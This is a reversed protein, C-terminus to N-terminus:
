VMGGILTEIWYSSVFHGKSSARTARILVGLLQTYYANESQIFRLGFVPSGSLGDLSQLTPTEDFEIEYCGDSISNGILAATVMLRQNRIKGIDYDIWNIESPFGCVLIKDFNTYERIQNNLNTFTNKEFNDNDIALDSLKLISIDFRDTDDTHYNNFNAGQGIPIFNRNMDGYPIRVQDATYAKLVHAATVLYLENAHEVGFCSGLMSYSYNEVNNEFLVPRSFKGLDNVKMMKGIGRGVNM